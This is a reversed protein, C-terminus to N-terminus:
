RRNRKRTKVALRRRFAETLKHSIDLLHVQGEDVLDGFAVAVKRLHEEWVQQQQERGAAWETELGGM